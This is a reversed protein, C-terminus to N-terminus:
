KDFFNNIIKKFSNFSESAEYQESLSLHIENAIVRSPHNEEFLQEYIDLAYDIYYIANNIDEIGQYILAMIRYADATQESNIGHRQIMYEINNQGYYLAAEYDKALIFLAPLRHLVENSPETKDYISELLEGALRYHGIANEHYGILNMIEGLNESLDIIEETATTINSMISLGFPIYSFFDLNEDSFEINNNVSEIIKNISRADPKLKKHLIHTVTQNVFLHKKTAEIWGIEQLELLDNIVSNIQKDSLQLLYGFEKFTYNTLPLCILNELINKQQRTFNKVQFEYIAMVYKLIRKQLNASKSDIRADIYKSLHHVKKDKQILIEQLKKITLKEYFKLQKGIFHAFFLNNEVKELIEVATEADEDSLYNKMLNFIAKNTPTQVGINNLGVLKANSIVIIKWGTTKAIEKIIAVQKIDNISDIILINVGEIEKLTELLDNYSSFINNTINYRFNLASNSFANIFDIRFDTHIKIYASHTFEKKNKITYDIAASTKGTGHIPNYLVCIQNKRKFFDNNLFAYTPTFISSQINKSIQTDTIFFPLKKVAIKKEFLFREYTKMYSNITDVGWFDVEFKTKENAIDIFNLIEDSSDVYNILLISEIDKQDEINEIIKSMNKIINDTNIDFVNFNLNVATKLDSSIIQFINKTESNTNEIFTNTEYIDNLVKILFTNLKKENLEMKNIIITNKFQKM